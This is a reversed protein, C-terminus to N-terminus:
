TARAPFGVEIERLGQAAKSLERLDVKQLINDSYEGRSVASLVDLSLSPELAKLKRVTMQVRLVRKLLQNAQHVRELQM